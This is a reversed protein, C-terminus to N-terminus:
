ILGHEKAFNLLGLPTYIELKRGINRRHSNITFESLFLQSAIEKTTLGEVIKGIIEIERDTLNFKKMFDSVLRPDETVRESAPNAFWKNGQAVANVAEKLIVSTSDKLLFGDAGLM